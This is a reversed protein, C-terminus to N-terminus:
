RRGTRAYSVAEIIGQAARDHTFGAAIERARASMRRELDPRDLIEAARAAWLEVDLPLVYGNEGNQVLDDACGALPTTMVPVGAACAENAVVGWTDRTTPFLLLRSAAYYEPLDAQQVFGAYEREVGRADLRALLAERLPGDGLVLVRCRARVAKVRAAVDAFFLPQKREILQGSFLLDFQKPADALARYRENDVSYCSRFLGDPACGYEEFLALTQMSVGIFAHSRAFVFRRVARHLASLDAEAQRTGETIVVHRRRHTRAWAFALLATPNFGATVVVDPDLERLRGWVDPNVHIFRGRYTIMRPRLFTRAYAELDLAWQRNPERQQCYIM